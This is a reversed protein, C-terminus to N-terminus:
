PWVMHPLIASTWDAIASILCPFFIYSSVVPSFYQGLPRGSEMYTAMNLGVM